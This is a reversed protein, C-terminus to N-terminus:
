KRIANFGAIAIGRPNDTTPIRVLTVRAVLNVTQNFGAGFYNVQYPAEVDWAYIGSIEYEKTITPPQTVTATLVLQRSEIAEFTGNRSMEEQYKKWGNATFYTSADMLQSRYNKFDLANVSTIADTVVQTVANKNAIPKSLPAIPVLTGDNQQIIYRPEPAPRTGVYVNGALSAMVAMALVVNVGLAKQTRKQLEKNRKLVQVIPDAKPGKGSPKSNASSTSM